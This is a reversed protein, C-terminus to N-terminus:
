PSIIERFCMEEDKALQATITVKINIM